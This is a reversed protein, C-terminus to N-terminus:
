LYGRQGLHRACGEIYGPRRQGPQGMVLLLRLRATRRQAQGTALSAHKREVSSQCCLLDRSNKAICSSLLTSSPGSEEDGTARDLTHVTSTSPIRPRAHASSCCSKSPRRRGHRRNRESAYSQSSELLERQPQMM